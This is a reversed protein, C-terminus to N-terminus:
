EGLVGKVFEITARIEDAERKKKENEGPLPLPKPEESEKGGMAWAFLRFEYEIVSLFYAEVSWENAPEQKLALRSENPLQRYLAAAHAYSYDVGM